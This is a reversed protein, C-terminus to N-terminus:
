TMSGATSERLGDTSRISGSIWGMFLGMLVNMSNALSAMLRGDLYQVLEKDM